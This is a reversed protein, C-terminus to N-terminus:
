GGKAVMKRGAQYNNRFDHLKPRSEVVQSFCSRLQEDDAGQRLPTKIDFELHSGLCPRM